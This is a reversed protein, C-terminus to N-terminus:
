KSIIENFLVCIVFQLFRVNQALKTETKFLSMHRLLKSYSVEDTTVRILHKIKSFNHSM